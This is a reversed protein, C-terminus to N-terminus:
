VRQRPKGEDQVLNLAVAQAWDMETGEWQDEKHPITPGM